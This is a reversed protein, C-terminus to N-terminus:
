QSIKNVGKIILDNIMKSGTISPHDDDAYFFDKDNHTVCREKVKNNCFLAHPYVRYMNKNKILDLVEYSDKTRKKYVEYSTTIEKKYSKNNVFRNLWKSNLKRPVNWGVEPIPYILIIKHKNELLEDVSDVIAENLTNETITSKFYGFDAGALDREVGGEENDFYESSLYLPLRGGIIVISEKSDLIKSRIKSQNEANCNQDVKNNKEYKNFGPLYWCGSLLFLNVRYNKKVLKNKLNPVLSGIQSDGIIFVDKNGSPNFICHDEIRKWCTEGNNNKTMKWLDETEINAQLIPPLRNKYGNNNVILVNFTIIFILASTLFLILNKFSIKKKDRFKKEITSYSIKSVIITIIILFIKKILDGETFEAIRAFVFIPFHWLYLSYSILGTGVFLDSSLIKTLVGEKHSFWVMLSIGVIPLTTILSPHLIEDTFYVFSCLVLFLGFIPLTQNLIKSKSRYKKKIELYALLSGALMEWLRTHISYFTLSINDKSGADAFYLSILIAVSLITLIYKRIHRFILLVVLPFFIYYQEEVSLSWTHLFPKLLSDEANYQVDALYFYFNSAFGLTSLISNAFDILSSPLLYLWALPFFFIIVTFLAPIIRRVRREYFKLFSFNKTAFLEKLILSTILYGSIVFFIDVGIFGGPLFNSGFLSLEAHYFIVAFVAIARIGDIEPRYRLKIDM